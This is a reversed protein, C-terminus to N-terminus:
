LVGGTGLRRECSHFTGRMALPMHVLVYVAAVVSVGCMGLVCM